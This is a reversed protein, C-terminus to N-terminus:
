CAFCMSSAKFCIVMMNSFDIIFRVIPGIGCVNRKEVKRQYNQLPFFSFALIQNLGELNPIYNKRLKKKPDIKDELTELM